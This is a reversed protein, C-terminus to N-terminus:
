DAAHDRVRLPNWDFLDGDVARKLLQTDVGHIGDVDQEAQFALEVDIDRVFLDLLNTRHPLHSLADFFQYRGLRSSGARALGGDLLPIRRTTMVPRPVIQASPRLVASHQSDSRAPREPIPAM